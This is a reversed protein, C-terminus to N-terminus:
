NYAKLLEKVQLRVSPMIKKARKRYYLLGITVAFLPVVIAIITLFIPFGQTSEPIKDFTLVLGFPAIGTMPM